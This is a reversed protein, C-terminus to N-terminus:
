AFFKAGYKRAATNLTIASATTVGLAATIYTAAITLTGEAGAAVFSLTPKNYTNGSQNYSGSSKQAVGLMHFGMRKGVSAGSGTVVGGKVIIYLLTGSSAAGLTTTGDEWNIDEPTGASSANNRAYTEVFTNLAEDDQVQNITVTAIGSDDFAVDTDIQDTNQYVTTAGVAPTTGNTATYVFLSRGGNIIYGAM